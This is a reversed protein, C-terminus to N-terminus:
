KSAKERGAPEGCGPCFRPPMFRLWHGAYRKIHFKEGCKACTFRRVTKPM